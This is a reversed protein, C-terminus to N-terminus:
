ILERGIKLPEPTAGADGGAGGVGEGDSTSNSYIKTNGVLTVDETIFGEVPITYAISSLYM